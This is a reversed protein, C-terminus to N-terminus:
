LAKPIEIEEALKRSKERAEQDQKAVRDRCEQRHAEHEEETMAQVQEDSMGDYFSVTYCPLGAFAKEAFFTASENSIVWKKEELPIAIETLKRGYGHIGDDIVNRYYRYAKTM